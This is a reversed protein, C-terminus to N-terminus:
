GSDVVGKLENFQKELEMQSPRLGQSQTHATQNYVPRAIGVCRAAYQEQRM